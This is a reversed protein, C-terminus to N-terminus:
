SCDLGRKRFDFAVRVVITTGNDTVWLQDIDDPSPEPIGTCTELQSTMDPSSARISHGTYAIEGYQTSFLSSSYTHSHFYSQSTAINEKSPSKVVQREGGPTWTVEVEIEVNLV